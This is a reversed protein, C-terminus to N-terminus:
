THPDKTTEIRDLGRVPKKRSSGEVRPSLTEILYADLRERVTELSPPDAVLEPVTTEWDDAIRDQVADPLGQNPDPSSHYSEAPAHARKAEFISAITETPPTADGAVIRYLDYYDRGRSRQYITRLKEAFIEALSYARLSFPTVDHVDHTREVPRGAVVEDGMVNLETTNKHDFMARYQISAEVYHTPYGGDDSEYYEDLSFEIGSRRSTVNLAHRLEAETGTFRGDVTFDLDESFRWTEPFYLKSLATGGKFLLDDGFDTSYIGYLVWSNVYDKEAYDTRVGLERALQRIGTEDLM